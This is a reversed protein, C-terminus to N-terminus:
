IGGGENGRTTREEKQERGGKMREDKKKAHRGNDRGWEGGRNPLKLPM